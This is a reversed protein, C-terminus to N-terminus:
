LYNDIYCRWLHVCYLALALGNASKSQGVPLTEASLRQLLCTREGYRECSDAKDGRHAAEKRELRVNLPWM